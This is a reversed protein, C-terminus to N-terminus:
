SGLPPRRAAAERKLVADHGREPRADPRQTIVGEVRGDAVVPLGGDDLPDLTATVSPLDGAPVLLGPSPHFAKM